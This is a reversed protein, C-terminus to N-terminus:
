QLYPTIAAILRECMIRYGEDNPHFQDAMYQPNNWLGAMADVVLVGKQRALDSVKKLREGGPLPPNLSLYVVLAGSNLLQDFLLASGDLTETEPYSGSDYYNEIADNGGSSVFIMKPNTFLAEPVKQLIEDTTLGPVAHQSVVQGYAKAFCTTPVDNQSQSGTGFALSDGLVAIHGLGPKANKVNDQTGQPASGPIGSNDDDSCATISLTLILAFIIKFNKM